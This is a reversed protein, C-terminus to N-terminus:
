VGIDTFDNFVRRGHVWTDTMDNHRWDVRAPQARTRIRVALMNTPGSSRRTYACRTSSVWEANLQMTSDAGFQFGVDEFVIQQAGLALDPARSFDIITANRGAGKIRISGKGDIFFADGQLPHTGPLLCLAIDRTDSAGFDRLRRELERNEPRVTIECGSGANQCLKDLADQVSVVTADTALDACVLKSRDLPIHTARVDCYLRRLWELVPAPGGALGLLERLTRSGSGTGDVCAP